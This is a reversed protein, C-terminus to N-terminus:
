HSLQVQLVENIAGIILPFYRDLPCDLMNRVYCRGDSTQENCRLCVERRLATVHDLINDSHTTQVVHVVNSFYKKLACEFQPSLRCNGHRDGDICKVCVKQQVTSWYQDLM